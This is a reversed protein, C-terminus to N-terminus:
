KRGTLVNNMFAVQKKGKEGYKGEKAALIKSAPIKEGMPTHTTAHLGGEHFKIPKSGSKKLVKIKM